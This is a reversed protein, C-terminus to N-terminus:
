FKQISRSRLILNGQEDISVQQRPLVLTTTDPQEIIAPGMLEQGPSLSFRNYVPTSVFSGEVFTDRHGQLAPTSEPAYPPMTTVQQPLTVVTWLNVIEITEEEFRYGYLLRHAEHFLNAVQEHRFHDAPLDVPITHSQGQYRLQLRRCIVPRSDGGLRAIAEAELETFNAILEEAPSDSLLKLWTRIQEERMESMLLGVASFVGPFIPVLVDPMGMEEALEAGHLPGAGGFICLSFQSPDHGREVTLKRIAATMRANVIRIIGEATEEIGLGLPAALSKQIARRAAELDLQMGGALSSQAAIRGLVLNADTVTPQTGGHGYCVPGPAAGASQPGVRLAGGNDIWGISGGGAGVTHIDVMPVNIALGNIESTNAYTPRGDHILSVDFSTGGVDATILNPRQASEALRLGAVVGGAPGSLLTEVSREGAVKATTMGGNSKMIFLREPLNNEELRLRLLDLYGQMKPQVYSNIACTNFREYEGQSRIVEHSLCFRMGPLLSQLVTRAALEHEPNVYSNLFGIAVSEVQAAKLRDALARLPAHDLPTAVTGDYHIREAVEFILERPVVPLPRRGRLDYLRPRNQRAIILVDRFGATTVFATRAGKRELVTNTAVTTGHILLALSAPDIQNRQCLDLVGTSLAEGPDHPTSHVKHCHFQGNETNISVLDTFTGGTDIGIRCNM